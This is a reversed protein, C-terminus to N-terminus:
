AFNVGVEYLGWRGELTDSASAPNRSILFQVSDGPSVGLPALLVAHASSQALDNPLYLIGLASAGGWVGDVRAYVRLVVQRADPAGDLIRGPLRLNLKTVNVPVKVTFGVGREVDSDYARSNGTASQSDNTLPADASIPWEAEPVQLMDACYCREGGLVGQLAGIVSGGPGTKSIGSM